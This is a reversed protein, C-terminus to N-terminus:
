FPNASTKAKKSPNNEAPEEHMNRKRSPDVNEKYPSTDLDLPDIRENLDVEARRARSDAKRKAEESEKEELLKALLDPVGTSPLTSVLKRILDLDLADMKIRVSVPYRKSKRAIIYDGEIKCWDTGIIGNIRSKPAYQYIVEM